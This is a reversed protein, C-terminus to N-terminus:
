GGSGVARRGSDGGGQRSPGARTAADQAEQRMMAAPNLAGEREARARDAAERLAADRELDATTLGTGRFMGFGFVLVLVVVLVLAAGAGFAGLVFKTSVQGEEFREKVDAVREAVQERAPRGSPERRFKELLGGTAMQNRFRSARERVGDILADIRRGLRALSEEFASRDAM